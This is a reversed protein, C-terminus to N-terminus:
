TCAASCNLSISRLCALSIDTGSRTGSYRTLNIAEQVEKPVFGPQNCNWVAPKANPMPRLIEDFSKEAESERKM